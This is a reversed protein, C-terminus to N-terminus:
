IEKKWYFLPVESSSDWADYLTGDKICAVHTGTGVIYTGEKHDNAFDKFTYCDPCLNSIVYRRYGKSHLYANIVSNSSPMDKSFFAHSALDIFASDWSINLAKALCRVTCDGVNKRQLPNPNFYVYSM